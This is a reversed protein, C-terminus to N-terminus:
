TRLLGLALLNSPNLTIAILSTLGFFDLTLVITLGVIESTGAVMFAAGEEAAMGGGVGTEVRLDM